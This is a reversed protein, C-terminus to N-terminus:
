GPDEWSGPLIRNLAESVCMFIVLGVDNIDQLVTVAAVTAVKSEVNYRTLNSFLVWTM